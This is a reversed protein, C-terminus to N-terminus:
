TVGPPGALVPEHDLHRVIDAALESATEPTDLVKRLKERGARADTDNSDAPVPKEVFPAERM